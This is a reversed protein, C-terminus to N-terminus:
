GLPGPVSFVTWFAATVRGLLYDPTLEQRLTMTLVGRTSDGFFFVTTLAALAAIGPAVGIALLAAAQLLMGGVFCAGFGWRSRMRSVFLGSAVSGLSAVGFLIGVVEDGRGLDEKVFFILLDTIGTSAFALGGTLITLWRFVPHEILFRVGALFEQRRGGEEPHREASARRLRVFSLTAASILFTVADVGIAAAVGFKHSVLGALLPGVAYAAAYSVELRGNAETIASRDVLNAVATIYSIGFVMALASGLATVLYILWLHPGFFTWVVPISGYVLFRGLDCRIMLKRRDVRDVIPGGIIGAVLGGVGYMATVVGMMTLSGTAQLVLLPVAILSFADGLVSFTQGLWFVNFNRDRTLAHAPPM